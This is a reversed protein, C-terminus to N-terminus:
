AYPQFKTTLYMKMRKKFVSFETVDLLDNPMANWFDIVRNALHFKFIDSKFPRKYITFKHKRLNLSSQETYLLFIDSRLKDDGHMVRHVMLLDLYM